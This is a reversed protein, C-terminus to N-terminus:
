KHEVVGYAAQCAEGAIRARGAEAAYAGALRDSEALLEAFVGAVTEASPGGDAPAPCAAPRRALRSIQERMREGDAREADIDAAFQDAEKRAENRVENITALWGQENQRARREHYAAADAHEARVEALQEGYRWDQFLWGLAIGALLAFAIKNM